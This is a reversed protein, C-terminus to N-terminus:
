DKVRAQIKVKAKKINEKMYELTNPIGHISLLQAQVATNTQWDTQKLKVHESLMEVKNLLRDLLHRLSSLTKRSENTVMEEIKQNSDVLKQSVSRALGVEWFHRNLKTGQLEKNRAAINAELIIKAAKELRIPNTIQDKLGRVHFRLESLLQQLHNQLIQRARWIDVGRDDNLWWAELQDILNEYMATAEAM